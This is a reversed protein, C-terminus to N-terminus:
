EPDSDCYMNRASSARINLVDSKMFPHSQVSINLTPRRQLIERIYHAIIQKTDEDGVAVYFGSCCSEKNNAEGLIKWNSCMMDLLEEEKKQPTALCRRIMPLKSIYNFFVSRIDRSRKLAGNWEEFNCFDSGKERKVIDLPIFKQQIFFPVRTCSGHLYDAIRVMEDIFDLTSIRFARIPKDNNHNNECLLKETDLKQVDSNKFLGLGIGYKLNRCSSSPCTFFVSDNGLCISKYISDERASALHGCINMSTLNSSTKMDALQAIMQSEEVTIQKDVELMTREWGTAELIAAHTKNTLIDNYILIGFSHGTGSEDDNESEEESCVSEAKFSAFKVEGVTTHIEIIGNYVYYGLSFSVSIIDMWTKLTLSLRTLEPSKRSYTYAMNRLLIAINETNTKKQENCIMLYFSKLMIAMQQAESARGECDDKKFIRNGHVFSMPFPQDEVNQGLSMDSQYLGEYLCMTWPVLIDRLVRLVVQIQNTDEIGRMMRMDNSGITINMSNMSHLECLTDFKISRLLEDSSICNIVLSHHCVYFLIEPPLTTGTPHQYLFSLHPFLPCNGYDRLLTRLNLFSSKSGPCLVQLVIQFWESIQIMSKHFNLDTGPLALLRVSNVPICIPQVHQVVLRVYPLSQCADEDYNYNFLGFVFGGVQSETILPFSSSYMFERTREQKIITRFFHCKISNCVTSVTPANSHQKAQSCTQVGCQLTSPNMLTFLGAVRFISAKENSPKGLISSADTCLGTWNPDCWLTMFDPMCCGNNTQNLSLMNDGNISSAVATEVFPNFGTKSTNEKNKDIIPSYVVLVLLDVKIEPVDYSFSTTTNM